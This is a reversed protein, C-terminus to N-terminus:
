ERYPLAKEFVRRIQHKSRLQPMQSKRRQKEEPVGVNRIQEPSGFCYANSKRDFHFGRFACPVNLKRNMQSMSESVLAVLQSRYRDDLLERIHQRSDEPPELSGLLLQLATM